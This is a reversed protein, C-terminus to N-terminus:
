PSVMLALLKESEVGGAYAKPNDKASSTPNQSACERCFIMALTHRVIM